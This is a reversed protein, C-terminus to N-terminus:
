QLLIPTHKRMIKIGMFPFVVYNYNLCINPEQELLEEQLNKFRSKVINSGILDLFHILRKKLDTNNRKKHNIPYGLRKFDGYIVESLM